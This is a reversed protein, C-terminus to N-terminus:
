QELDKYFKFVEALGYQTHQGAFNSIIKTALSFDEQTDIALQLGGAEPCINNYYYHYNEGEDHQYLYITVHEFHDPHDFKKYQSAYYDTNVIEISMGKPFTRDKLNSILDHKGSRAIEIMEKLSQVDVFINDGNIRTTYSHKNEIACNLFRESVNDLSGRYYNIEHKQCYAIIPDDTSETSTSVVINKRDVVAELKEIIYQLIPKGEIERLIKGPLRSSNYRCIIQFGVDIM